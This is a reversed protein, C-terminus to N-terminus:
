KKTKKSASKTPKKPKETKIISPQDPIKPTISSLIEQNKEIVPDKTKNLITPEVPIVPAPEVPIVPAPEVPIVPAPEVPPSADIVTIKPEIEPEKSIESMLNSYFEKNIIPDTGTEMTVEAQSKFQENKHAGAIEDSSIFKLMGPYKESLGEPLGRNLGEHIRYTKGPVNM